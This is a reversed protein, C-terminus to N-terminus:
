FSFRANLSASDDEELLMYVLGVSLHGLFHVRAGLDFGVQGDDSLFSEDLSIWLLRGQLELGGDGFPLAMWRGGARLQYGTSSEDGVDSSLDSYLLTIDGILDLRRLVDLHVGAGLRWLDTDTNNFDISSNEYGLFVYLIDLLSLSAEGYYIDAEDDIQDVDFRAAGLEVYTYSFDWDRDEDPAASAPALTLPEALLSPISPGTAAEPTAVPPLVPLTLSLIAIPLV